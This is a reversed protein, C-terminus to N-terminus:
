STYSCVTAAKPCLTDRKVLHSENSFLARLPLARQRNIPSRLWTEFEVLAVPSSERVMTRQLGSKCMAVGHASLVSSVSETRLSGAPGRTDCGPLNSRRPARCQPWTFYSEYVVAMYIRAAERTALMLHDAGGICEQGCCWQSSLALEEGGETYLLLPSTRSSPWTSYPPLPRNFMNDPRFRLVWQYLRGERASREHHTVLHWARWLNFQQGFVLLQASNACRSDPTARQMAATCVRGGECSASCCQRDAQAWEVAVPNFLELLQSPLSDTRNPYEEYKGVGWTGASQAAFAFFVDTKDRLPAILARYSSQYVPSLSFGRVQGVVCAAIPKIQKHARPLSSATSPRSAGEAQVQQYKPLTHGYPTCRLPCLNQDDRETSKPEQVCKSANVWVGLQDMLCGSRCCLQLYEAASCLRAGHAACEAEAEGLTSAMPRICTKPYRSADSKRVPPHCISICHAERRDGPQCCRVAGRQQSNVLATACLPMTHSQRVASPTCGRHLAPFHMNTDIDFEWGCVCV